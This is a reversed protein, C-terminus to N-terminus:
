RRSPGLKAFGGIQGPYPSWSMASVFAPSRRDAIRNVHDEIAGDFGTKDFDDADQVLAHLGASM